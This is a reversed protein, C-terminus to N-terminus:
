ARRVDRTSSRSYNMNQSLYSRVVSQVITAAEDPNPDNLAVKILNTGEIITVKLKELLARRPDKSDRIFPLNVALPDAIAPNLVRSSTILGVQTKLYPKHQVGTTGQTSEIRLLSIVEYTPPILVWILWITSSPRAALAAPNAAM